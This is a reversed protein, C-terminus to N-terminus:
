GPGRRRQLADDLRAFFVQPRRHDAVTVRIVKWGSEHLVDNKNIDHQWARRDLRHDESDYEIAIRKEPYALDIFYEIGTSAEVVPHNLAPEPYGHRLLQLRVKTEMPSWSRERVHPLASRLAPAGRGRLEEVIEAMEALRVRRKAGFRDTALADLAVVLDVPRLRAAIDQLALLPHVMPLGKHSIERQALAAHVVVLSGATAGTGGPGRCHLASGGVLTLPVPLPVGLIEAATQHSLVAGPRVHTVFFRALGELALEADSRAWWGPLVRRMAHSALDRRHMGDELLRARSYFVGRRLDEPRLSM